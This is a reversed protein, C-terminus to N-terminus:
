IVQINDYPLTMLFVSGSEDSQALVIDGKHRRVITRALCLGLGTGPTTRSSEARFFRDFIRYAYAPDIGIGTDRIEVHIMNEMIFARVIVKGNEPTYKIANDLVNTFARQLMKMDAYAHIEDKIDCVLSINKDEALPTFLDCADMIMKSLNIESFSFDEQGAEARSIVLMTNIMDLLRDSEEITNSAMIRYEEMNDTGATLALEAFGRIRTIPSKLDHAINDSMERISRVLEEIRDLMSNFTIALEDLENRRGTQPVRAELNSAGINRATRTITEVGSLTKRVLLWGSVASFIIIFGMAGTFVRKFASLFKQYDVAVGTQLIANAAVFSYLIRAKQGTSPLEITEFINNKNLVLNKLAYPSVRVKQWYSMHSSAFVEGTPYVLRFFILKEGAAQAEVVALERAGALGNRQIIATFKSANDLLEQDTQAQLTQVALFYFLGFAVTSCVTFIGTFWLTLRFAITHFIKHKM